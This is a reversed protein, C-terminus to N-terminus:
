GDLMTLDFSADFPNHFRVGEIRAGSSFDESLVNAIGHHKATAWITSDFYSFGHRRVARTAEVVRDPTLSLVRWSRAYNAVSLEAATLPIPPRLKRTVTVFYEGLVQATLAGAGSDALRSLVSLAREQKVPDAPDYAYVLVNTDVLFASSVNTM